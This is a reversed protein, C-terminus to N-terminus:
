LFRKGGDETIFQLSKIQGDLTKIPIVLAKKSQRIGCPRIGKKILYPFQTDAEKAREWIAKAREGAKEKEKEQAEQRAQEARQMKERFAAREEASMNGNKACWKYTEGQRWDGYAGAPVPGDPYCIYWGVKKPGFRHVRGDGIIPGPDVGLTAVIENKFSSLCEIDRM